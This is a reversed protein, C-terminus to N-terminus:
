IVSPDNSRFILRIHSYLNFPEFVQFRDFIAQKM